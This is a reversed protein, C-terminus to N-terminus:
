KGFDLGDTIQSHLLIVCSFLKKSFIIESTKFKFIFTSSGPTPVLITPFSSNEKSAFQPLAIQLTLPCHYGMSKM